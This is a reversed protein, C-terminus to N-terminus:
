HVSDFFNNGINKKIRHNQLFEVIQKRCRTSDTDKSYTYTSPSRQLPERRYLDRSTAGVKIEKDASEENDCHTRGERNEHQKASQRIKREEAGTAREDHEGGGFLAEAEDKIRQEAEASNSKRRQSM